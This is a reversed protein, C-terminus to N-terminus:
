RINLEFIGIGAAGGIIDTATPEGFGKACDRARALFGKDGSARYADLFAQGVGARGTYLGPDDGAAAFAADLRRRAADLWEKTGTARCLGALLIAVGAEGSYVCPDKTADRALIARGAQEALEVCWQPDRLLKAAAPQVPNPEGAGSLLTLLLSVFPAGPATV